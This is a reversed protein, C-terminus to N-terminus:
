DLYLRYVAPFSNAVQLSIPQPLRGSFSFLTGDTGSDASCLFLRDFSKDFPGGVAAFTFVASVARFAGNVSEITPWGAADRTIAQRAYGNTESVENVIDALTMTETPTDSCLGVYFNGGPAIPDTAGRFIMKLFAEEGQNTVLNPIVIEKETAPFLVYEGLM